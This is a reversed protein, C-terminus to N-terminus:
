LLLRCVLQGPTEPARLHTYSVAMGGNWLVAVIQASKNHYALVLRSRKQAEKTAAAIMHSNTRVVSPLNRAQLTFFERWTSPPPYLYRAWSGHSDIVGVPYRDRICM